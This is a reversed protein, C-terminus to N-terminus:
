AAVPEHRPPETASTLGLLQKQWAMLADGSPDEATAELALRPAVISPELGLESAVKDRVARLHELRKLMERSNRKRPTREPKPWEHEPINLALALVVEFSKKRRGSMRPTSFAEGRVACESIRLMDHNGMVHFPPRDWAKAEEDRWQWLVRLVSQARASLAASKPIRWAKSDDRKKVEKAAASMRAISEHFWTRRGLAALQGDLIEALDLLYRTDNVAYDAMQKSLPRLAWNAKQSAKSLTVGFFKEVLAALGLEKYGCLKAAIMTDFLDESEFRLTRNLLRLDYDAGHLILRKPRLADFFPQLDLGALPDILLHEEPSSVQILCIKEFYSHLSDAETDLAIRPFPELHHILDM